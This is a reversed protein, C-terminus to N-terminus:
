LAKVFHTEAPQYGCRRYITSVDNIALSAMGISVCGLARAWDEYAALMSFGSRGRYAPNIWWVTEKAWLGAGFPHYFAAAMLLGQVIEADQYVICCCDDGGAHARFLAEAYAPRFPFEFGAAAHSDRLLAIVRLRDGSVAMRIM